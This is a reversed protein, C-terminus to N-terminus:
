CADRWARSNHASGNDSLVREVRDTRAAFWSTARSLGSMAMVAEDDNHIEAYAIRSHDEIVTDVYATGLFPQHSKNSAKRPNRARNGDGQLRGVYRWGAGDTINGPKTVDVHVLSM